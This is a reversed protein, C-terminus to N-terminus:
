IEMVVRFDRISELIFSINRLLAAKQYFNKEILNGDQITEDPLGDSTYTFEIKQFM